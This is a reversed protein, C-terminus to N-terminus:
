SKYVNDDSLEIGLAKHLQLEIYDAYQPAPGCYVYKKGDIVEANQEKFEDIKAQTHKKFDHRWYRYAQQLVELTMADLKTNM